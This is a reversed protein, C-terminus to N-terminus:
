KLASLITQIDFVNNLDNYPIKSIDEFLPLKQYYPHNLDLPKEYPNSVINQHM